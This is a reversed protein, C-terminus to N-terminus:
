PVSHLVVAGKVFCFEDLFFPLFNLQEQQNNSGNHYCSALQMSIFPASPLSSPQSGAPWIVVPTMAVAACKSYLIHAVLLYAYVKTSSLCYLTYSGGITTEVDPPLGSSSSNLYLSPLWTAKLNGVSSLAMDVSVCCRPFFCVNVM